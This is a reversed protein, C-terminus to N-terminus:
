VNTRSGRRIWALSDTASEMEPFSITDWSYLFLAYTGPGEFINFALSVLPDIM